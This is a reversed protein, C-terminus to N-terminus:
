SMRILWQTDDRTHSEANNEAVEDVEVCVANIGAGPPSQARVCVLLIKGHLHRQTVALKGAHAAM